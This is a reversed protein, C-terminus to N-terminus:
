PTTVEFTTSFRQKGKIAAAIDDWIGLARANALNLEVAERLMELAEDPTDGCSSVDLEPCLSVYTKRERWLTATLTARAM